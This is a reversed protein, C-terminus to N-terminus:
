IGAAWKWVVNKELGIHSQHWAFYQFVPKTPFSKSMELVQLKAKVPQHHLSCLLGGSKSDSPMALGESTAQSEM